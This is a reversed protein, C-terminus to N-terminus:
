PAPGDTAVSRYVLELWPVTDYRPLDRPDIWALDQHEWNLRPEGELLDFLFPYVLWGTRERPDGLQIAPGARVLRVQSALLGAEQRIEHLAQDLAPTGEPLYGSIGHWKGPASELAMSRRLLCIRGDRRLFSTVIGQPPAGTDRQFQQWARRLDRPTSAEADAPVQRGLGALRSSLWRRAGPPDVESGPLLRAGRKDKLSLYSGWRREADRFGKIGAEFREAAPFPDDLSAPVVHLHAHNGSAPDGREVITTPAIRAAAFAEVRSLLGRFEADLDLSLKSFAGVHERPLILLHGSVLPFLEAALAFSRSEFLLRPELSEPTCLPCGSVQRPM